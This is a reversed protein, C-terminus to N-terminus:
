AAGSPWANGNDAPSTSGAPGRRASSLTSGGRFAGPAADPVLTSLRYIHDAIEDVRTDM